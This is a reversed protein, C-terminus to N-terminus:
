AFQALNICVGERGDRARPNFSGASKSGGQSEKADM